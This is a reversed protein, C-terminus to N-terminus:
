YYDPVTRILTAELMTRTSSSQPRRGDRDLINGALMRNTHDRGIQLREVGQQITDIHVSLPVTQLEASGVKERMEELESRMGQLKLLTGSVYGSANQRYMNVKQLLKLETDFKSLKTRNGGLMTWLQSLVQDKSYQAETNDRISIGYINDLQDELYKLTLLLKQAQEILRNIEKEVIQTHKLYQDLLLDETFKIPMFPALLKDSIFHTVAGQAADREAIGELVRKTHKAMALISDVSTGVRAGFNMLDDSATGATKIFVGFQYVLEDKSRLNSHTVLQRLDRISAESRKMDMPLTIGEATQELIEEFKSQTEMLQDFEVAPTANGKYNISVPSQCMELNLLSAGPIRCIPSLASYISNTLVNRTIVMLGVLLYIALAYSLPTKAYGLAGGIIDFLWKIGAKFFDEIAESVNVNKDQTRRSGRARAPIDKMITNKQPNRRKKVEPRSQRSTEEYISPMVLEPESGAMMSKRPRGRGPKRPSALASKNDVSGSSASTKRAVGSGHKATIRSSNEQSKRSHPETHGTNRLPTQSAPEASFSSDSSQDASSDGSDSSGVVWSDGLDPEKYARSRPKRPQAM